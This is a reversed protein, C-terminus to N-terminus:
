KQAAGSMMYSTCLGLVVWGSGEWAHKDMWYIFSKAVYVYPAMEEGGSTPLLLTRNNLARM